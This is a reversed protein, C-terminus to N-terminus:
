FLEDDRQRRRSIVFQEGKEVVKAKLENLGNLARTKESMSCQLIPKWDLSQAADSFGRDRSGLFITWEGGRKFYGLLQEYQGSEDEWYTVEAGELVPLERLWEIAEEWAKNVQEYESQLDRVLTKKRAELTQEPAPQGNLSFRQNM